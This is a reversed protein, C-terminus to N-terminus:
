YHKHCRLCIKKSTFLKPFNSSHPNHCSACSMISKPFKPDPIGGIPHIERNPLPVVHRGTGKAMHCGVCVEHIPASLLQPIDSAHPNHCNCRRGISVKHVYKKTFKAKDHCTYCLEPLDNILLKSFNSRHPKHCSTCSGGAVPSHVVKGKFKSEDHCNYCLLPIEQVLKISNKQKPHVKDQVPIHCPECGTKLAAHVNRGHKRFETHCKLCTKKQSALTQVSLGCTLLFFALIFSLIFFLVQKTTTM